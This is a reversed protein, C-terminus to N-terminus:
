RRGAKRPVLTRGLHAVHARLDASTRFQGSGLAVLQLTGLYTGYATAAWRDAEAAPLGFARYLSRVYDLRRKNVRLYSPRVRPDGAVAAAALAAEARLHDVRDWSRSFLRELRASPDAIADLERIVEETAEAEWWALLAAFFADLGAFYNYFSGKTVELRRALPEVAVAGIGGEALAALAAGLWDERTVRRNMAKVPFM